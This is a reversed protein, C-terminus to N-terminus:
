HGRFAEELWWSARGAAVKADVVMPVDRVGAAWAAISALDGPQRVTVTLARGHSLLPSIRPM